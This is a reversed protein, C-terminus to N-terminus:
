RSLEMLEAYLAARLEPGIPPSGSMEALALGDCALRIMLGRAPTLQDDPPSDIAAFAACYIELLQPYAGLAGALANSLALEDPPTDFTARIYSRTWRGKVEAPEDALAADLRAAFVTALHETLGELLALKSPFHHLLGGKSVAAAAAVHDLTLDLLGRAAIEDTAARLIKARTETPNKQRM